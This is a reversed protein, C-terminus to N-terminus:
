TRLNDGAVEYYERESFHGPRVGLGAIPTAWDALAVNDWTKLVAPTQAQQSSILFFFAICILPRQVLM